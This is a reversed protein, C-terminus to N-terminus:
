NLINFLYNYIISQKKLLIFRNTSSLFYRAISYNLKISVMWYIIKSNKTYYFFPPCYIISYIYTLHTVFCIITYEKKRYFLFCNAVNNESFIYKFIEKILCFLVGFYYIDSYHEITRYVGIFRTIFIPFGHIELPVAFESNDTPIVM